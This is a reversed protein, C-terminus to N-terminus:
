RQGGKFDMSTLFFYLPRIDETDTVKKDFQCQIFYNEHPKFGPLYLDNQNENCVKKYSEVGDVYISMTGGFQSDVIFWHFYLTDNDGSNLLVRFDPGAWHDFDPDSPAQYGSLGYYYGTTYVNNTVPSTSFIDYQNKRLSSAYQYSEEQTLGICSRGDADVAIDSPKGATKLALLEQGDYSWFGLRATGYSGIASVSVCAALVVAGIAVCLNTRDKKGECVPRSSLFDKIDFYCVSIGILFFVTFIGDYDNLFSRSNFLGHWLCLLLLGVKVFFRGISGPRKSRLNWVACGALCVLMCTGFFVVGFRLLKGLTVLTPFESKWVTMSGFANPALSAIANAVYDKLSFYSFNPLLSSGNAWYIAQHGLFLALSAGLVILHAKRIQKKAIAYVAFALGAVLAAMTFSSAFLFCCVLMFVCCVIWRILSPKEQAFFRKFLWYLYGFLLLASLYLYTTAPHSNGNLPNLFVFGLFVLFTAQLYFPHKTSGLYFCAFCWYLVALVLYILVRGFQFFGSSGMADIMPQFVLLGNGQSTWLSGTMSIATFWEQTEPIAFFFFLFTGFGFVLLSLLWAFPAEKVRNATSVLFTPVIRKKPTDTTM